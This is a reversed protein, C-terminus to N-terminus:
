SLLGHLSALLFVSVLRFETLGLSMGKWHQSFQLLIDINAQERTSNVTIPHRPHIVYLFRWLATIDAWPEEPPLM